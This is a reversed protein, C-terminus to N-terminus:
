KSVPIIRWAPGAVLGVQIIQTCWKRPPKKQHRPCLGAMCPLHELRHWQSQISDITWLCRNEISLLHYIATAIHTHKKKWHLVFRWQRYSSWHQSPKRTKKANQAHKKKPFLPWWWDPFSFCRGPFVSNTPPRMWFSGPVRLGVM